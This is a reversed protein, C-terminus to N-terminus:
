YPSNTWLAQTISCTHCSPLCFHSTHISIRGQDNTSSLQSLTDWQESTQYPALEPVLDPEQPKSLPTSVKLLWVVRLISSPFPLLSGSLTSLFSLDCIKVANTLWTCKRGQQLTQTHLVGPALDRTRVKFSNHLLYSLLYSILYRGSLLQTETSSFAAM